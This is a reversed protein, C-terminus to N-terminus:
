AAAGAAGAAAPSAGVAVVAGAVVGDVAVAGAVPRPRQHRQANQLRQQHHPVRHMRNTRALLRTLYDACRNVIKFAILSLRLFTAVIERQIRREFRHLGLIVIRQHNGPSASRFIDPQVRFNEVNHAVKRARLFRNGRQAM